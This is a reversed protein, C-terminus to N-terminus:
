ANWMTAKAREAWNEDYSKGDFDNQMSSLIDGLSPLGESHNEGNWTGARMLARACQSYVENVTIVIVSGPVRGRDNFGAILEPDVSVVATGTVRTVNNTGQVMYM